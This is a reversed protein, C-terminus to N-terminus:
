LTSFSAKATPPAQQSLAQKGLIQPPALDKFKSSTASIQNTALSLHQQSHQNIFNHFRSMLSDHNVLVKREEKNINATQSSNCLLLNRQYTVKDVSGNELQAHQKTSNHKQNTAGGSNFSKISSERSSSMQNLNFNNTFSQIFSKRTFADDLNSQTVLASSNVDLVAHSLMSNNECGDTGIVEESEITQLHNGDPGGM